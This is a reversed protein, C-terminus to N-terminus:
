LGGESLKRCCFSFAQCGMRVGKLALNAMAYYLKNNGYIKERNKRKFVIMYLHDSNKYGYSDRENGCACEEQTLWIRYTRSVRSIKCRLIGTHLRINIRGSLDVLVDDCVISRRWIYIAGDRLLVFSFHTLNACLVTSANCIQLCIYMCVYMLIYVYKYMCAFMCIYM